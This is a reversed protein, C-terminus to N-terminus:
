PAQLNEKTELKYLYFRRKEFFELIIQTNYCNWNRIKQKLNNAAIEITKDASKKVTRDRM